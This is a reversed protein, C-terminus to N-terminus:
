RRALVFSPCDPRTRRVGAWLPQRQDKFVRGFIQVGDIPVDRRNKPEFFCGPGRKRAGLGFKTSLQISGSRSFREGPQAMQAAGIM